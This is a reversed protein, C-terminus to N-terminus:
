AHQVGEASRGCSDASKASLRYVWGHEGFLLECDREVGEHVARLEDVLDVAIAQQNVRVLLVDAFAQEVIVIEILKCPENFVEM